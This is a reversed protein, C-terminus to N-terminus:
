YASLTVRALPNVGAPPCLYGPNVLLLKTAAAAAAAAAAAVVVVVVFVVDDYSNYQRCQTARPNLKEATTQKLKKTPIILGDLVKKM